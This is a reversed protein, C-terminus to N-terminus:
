LLEELTIDDLRLKVLNGDDDILPIYAGDPDPEDAFEIGYENLLEDFTSLPKERRELKKKM